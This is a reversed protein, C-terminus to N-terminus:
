TGVTDWSHTCKAHQEAKQEDLQVRAAIDEIVNCESAFYSVSHRV